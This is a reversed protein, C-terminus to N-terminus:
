ARDIPFALTEALSDLSLKLMLVRDLGLAVGACDPLGHELANLLAADIPPCIRNQAQRSDREAEFRQRLEVADTLEHFGNALEVGRYFVEFREAVPPDGHKIRALIAQSAPYDCIFCLGDKGLRPAVVAGMLLDLWADRDEADIGIPEAIGQTSLTKRLAALDASHPDIGATSVFADRYTIRETQGEPELLEGLLAETEDMLRHHDFGPRYWELLTFEPNHLRGQEGERFVPCIQYVAEGYAALLRKMAFEPSTILYGTGLSDSEVRLSDLNPDTGGAASLLPTQAELVGRQAFFERVQALLEARAHLTQLSAAPRWPRDNM